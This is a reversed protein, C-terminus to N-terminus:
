YPTYFAQKRCINTYYLIVLFALLINFFVLSDSSFRIKGTWKKSFMFLIFQRIGHMSVAYWLEVLLVHFHCLIVFVCIVCVIHVFVATLAISVARRIAVHLSLVTLICLACFVSGFVFVCVLRCVAVGLVVAIIM